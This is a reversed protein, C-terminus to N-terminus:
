IIDNLIQNTIDPINERMLIENYDNPKVTILLDYHYKKAFSRILKVIIIQFSKLEQNRRNNFDNSFSNNEKRFTEPSINGKKVEENMSVLFRERDKFELELRKKALEGQPLAEVIESINIFGIKCPNNNQNNVIDVVKDYDNTNRIINTFDLNESVYIVEKDLLFFNAREKLYAKIGDTRVEDKNAFGVNANCRTLSNPSKNSDSNYNNWTPINGDGLSFQNPYYINYIIDSDSIASASFSLIFIFFYWQMNLRM